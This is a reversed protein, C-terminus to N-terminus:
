ATPGGSFIVQRVEIGLGDFRADPIMAALELARDRSAVDVLYYGGLFEKAELYPGDTVVPVGDRVRVVASQSPDALAETDIMEGSERITTMFEGHGAMIEQREAETLAEMIVPNIHMILLFKM